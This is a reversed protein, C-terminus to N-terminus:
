NKKNKRLCGSKDIFQKKLRALLENKIVLAKPIDKIENEIDYKQLLVDQLNQLKEFVEQVM